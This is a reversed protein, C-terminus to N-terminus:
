SVSLPVSHVVILESTRSNDVTNFQTSTSKLAYRLIESAGGAFDTSKQSKKSTNELIKWAKPDIRSAGAILHDHGGWVSGPTSTM